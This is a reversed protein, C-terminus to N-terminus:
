RRGWLRPKHVNQFTSPGTSRALSQRHLIYHVCCVAPLLLLRCTVTSTLDICLAITTFQNNVYFQEYASLM